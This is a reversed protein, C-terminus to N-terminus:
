KVLVILLIIGAGVAILPIAPSNRKPLVGGVYDGLGQFFNEPANPDVEPGKMKNWTDKWFSVEDPPTGAPTIPPANPPTDPPSEIPKGGTLWIWWANEAGFDYGKESPRDPDKLPPSVAEPPAIVVGSGGTKSVPRSGPNVEPTILHDLLQGGQYAGTAGPFFTAMSYAIKGLKDWMGGTQKVIEANSSIENRGIRALGTSGSNFPFDNITALPTKYPDYPTAILSVKGTQPNIVNLPGEITEHAYPIDPNNDVYDFYGNDGRSLAGSSECLSRVKM